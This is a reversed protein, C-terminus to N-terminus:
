WLRIAGHMDLKPGYFVKRLSGLVRPKTADM